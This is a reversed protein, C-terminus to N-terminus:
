YQVDWYRHHYIVDTYKELILVPSDTRQVNTCSWVVHNQKVDTFPCILGNWWFVVGHHSTWLWSVVSSIAVVGVWIILVKNLVITQCLLSMRYVNQGRESFLINTVSTGPQKEEVDFMCKVNITQFFFHILWFVNDIRISLVCIRNM